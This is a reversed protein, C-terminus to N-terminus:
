STQSEEATENPGNDRHPPHHNEALGGYFYQHRSRKGKRKAKPTINRTHKNDRRTLFFAVRYRMIIHRTVVDCRHIM